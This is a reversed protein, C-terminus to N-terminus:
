PPSSANNFFSAGQLAKAIKGVVADQFLVVTGRNRERTETLIVFPVYRTTAGDVKPIYGVLQYSGRLTGTKGRVLGYTASQRMRGALTGDVGAIPLSNWLADFNPEKTWRRLLAMYARPTARNALSLGAGEVVDIDQAWEAHGAQLLWEDLRRRVVSQSAQLLNQQVSVQRALAKFIADAFLNDSPKNMAVLLVRLPASEIAFGQREAASLERMVGKWADAGLPHLVKTGAAVKVGLARLEALFGQGYWGASDLVQLKTGFGAPSAALYTGSLRFGQVIRETSVVTELGIHNRSGPIAHNEVKVFDGIGPFQWSVSNKGNSWASACNAALNFAGAIAAFCYRIDEIPAGPPVERVDLRPDAALLTVPGVLEAVGREKLAAALRRLRKPDAAAFERTGATPDGDAVIVLDKARRDELRFSVKTQFRFDPGLERLATATVILKTISAPTFNEAENQQYHPAAAKGEVEDATLIGIKIDRRRKLVLDVDFPAPPRPSAKPVPSSAPAAEVVAAYEEEGVFVRTNEAAEMEAADPSPLGDVDISIPTEPSCAIAAMSIFLVVLGRGGRDFM